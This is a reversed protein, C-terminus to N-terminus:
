FYFVVNLSDTKYIKTKIYNCGNHVVTVGCALSVSFLSRKVMVLPWLLTVTHLM